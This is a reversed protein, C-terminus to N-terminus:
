CIENQRCWELWTLNSNNYDRIEEVSVQMDRAQDEETYGEYPDILEERANQYGDSYVIALENEFFKQFMKSFFIDQRNFFLKHKM